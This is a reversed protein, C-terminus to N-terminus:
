LTTLANNRELLVVYAERGGNTKSWKPGPSPRTNFIFCINQNGNHQQQFLTIVFFHRTSRLGRESLTDKPLGGTLLFFGFCFVGFLCAWVVETRASVYDFQDYKIAYQEM